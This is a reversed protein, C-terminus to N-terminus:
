SAGRCKPVAIIEQIRYDAFTPVVHSVKTHTHLVRVLTRSSQPRLATM